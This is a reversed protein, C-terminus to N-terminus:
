DILGLRGHSGEEGPRTLLHNNSIHHSHHVRKVWLENYESRSGSREHVQQDQEQSRRSSRGKCTGALDRGGGPCREEEFGRLNGSSGWSPEAQIQPIGSCPWWSNVTKGPGARAEEVGVETLGKPFLINISAGGVSPRKNAGVALPPYERGCAATCVVASYSM